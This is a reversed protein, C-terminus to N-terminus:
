EGRFRDKYINDTYNSLVKKNNQLGANCLSLYVARIGQTLSTFKASWKGGCFAAIQSSTSDLLGQFANWVLVLAYVPMHACFYAGKSRTQEKTKPHPPLPPSPCTEAAISFGWLSPPRGWGEERMQGMVMVCVEQCRFLGGRKAHLPRLSSKRERERKKKKFAPTSESKLIHESSTKFRLRYDLPQDRMHDRARM